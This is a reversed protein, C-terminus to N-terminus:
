RGLRREIDVLQEYADKNREDSRNPILEMIIRYQEAAKPWDSLKRASKALFLHDNYKQQLAERAQERGAIVDRYFSPKPDIADLYTDAVEYARISLSLNEHRVDREGYLKRGQLMSERALEIAKERPLSLAILGLSNEAFVEIDKRVKKFVDPEVRNLVRCSHTKTGITISLNWSHHMGRALGLYERNLEFFGSRQISDTLKAVLEEDVAAEKGPVHRANALDDMQVMVRGDCLRLHYRFINQADAEVKEYVIELTDPETSSAAVGAARRAGLLSRGRVALLVIAVLAVLSAVVWLLRPAHRKSSSGTATPPQEGLGLDVHHADPAEPESAAPGPEPAPVPDPAPVVPQPAPSSAAGLRDRVVKLTTDGVTVRSGVVLQKEQVAKDNVLTQNTSGLDAVWLTGDDKFFVRCHFRSLGEDKLQIDNSSSRGIRGGGAPVVIELGKDPGAEVILHPLNEAGETV